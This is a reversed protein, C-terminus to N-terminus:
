DSKLLLYPKLHRPIDLSPVSQMAIYSLARNITNRALHQLRLPTQLKSVWELANQIAIRDEDLTDETLSQQSAVLKKKIEIIQSSKLDSLMHRILRSSRGPQSSYRAFLAIMNTFEILSDTEGIEKTRYELINEDIGSLSLCRYMNGFSDMMSNLAESCEDIDSLTIAVDEADLVLEYIYDLKKKIGPYANDQVGHEVLVIVLETNLSLRYASTSAYSSDLLLEKEVFYNTQLLIELSLRICWDASDSQAALLIRVTEIVMPNGRTVIDIDTSQM